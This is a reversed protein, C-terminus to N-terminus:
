KKKPQIKILALDNRRDRYLVSAEYTDHNELSVQIKGGGQLVHSNTLINGANDLVFGSGIDRSPIVEMFWGRRYVTSTIHVTALRARKYIDINNMEDASLGATRAREPGSWAVARGRIPDLLRDVLPNGRSTVFIFGGILCTALLLVRMKM